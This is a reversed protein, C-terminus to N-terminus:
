RGLDYKEPGDIDTTDLDAHCIQSSQDDIKAELIHMRQEIAPVRDKTTFALGSCLELVKQLGFEGLSCAPWCLEKYPSGFFPFRDDGPVRHGILRATIRPM